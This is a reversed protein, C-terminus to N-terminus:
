RDEDLGGGPLAVVVSISVHCLVRTSVKRNLLITAHICLGSIDEGLVPVIVVRTASGAPAALLTRIADADGVQNVQHM